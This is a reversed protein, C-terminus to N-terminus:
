LAERIGIIVASIPPIHTCNGSDSLCTHMKMGTNDRKAPTSRPLHGAKVLAVRKKAMLDNGEEM